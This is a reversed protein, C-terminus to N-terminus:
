YLKGDDAFSYYGREGIILYDLFKIDGIKSFDSIQQILKKDRNCPIISGDERNRCLIFSHTPHMFVKLFIARLDITRDTIKGLCVKELQVIQGNRDLCLVGFTVLSFDHLFPAVYNAVKRSNDIRPMPPAEEAQRRRYLETFAALVRARGPDTNYRLENISLKTLNHISSGCVTLVKTALQVTDPDIKGASLIVALLEATTLNEPAKEYLNDNPAHTVPGQCIRQKKEKM